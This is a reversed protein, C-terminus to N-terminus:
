GGLNKEKIDKWSKWGTKVYKEREKIDEKVWSLFANFSRMAKVEEYDGVGLRVLHNIFAEEALKQTTGTINREEVNYGLRHLNERAELLIFGPCIHIEGKKDIELEEVGQLIIDKAYGLYTKYRFKEGQFIRIPIEGIHRENTGVRRM